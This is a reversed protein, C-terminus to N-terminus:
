FTYSVGTIIQLGANPYSRKIGVVEEDLDRETISSYRDRVMIDFEEMRRRITRLSVGLLRAIDPCTFKLDLLYELQDHSIDFRPRVIGEQVSSVNSHYTSTFNDSREDQHVALFRFRSAVEAAASLLDDDVNSVALLHQYLLEAHRGLTEFTAMDRTQLLYAAEHFIQECLRDVSSGLEHNTQEAM